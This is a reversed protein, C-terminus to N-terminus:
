RWTMVLEREIERYGARRFAAAMPTNGLDTAARVRPVGQAALVRTGEALIEEAYGRGRHDPLVALYAIVANYGNHAPVVFGVPDGDPLAAVRWWSRPTTYRAMEEEYHDLAVQRAPARSLDAISHADLTGPLVDTMLDILEGEGYPERFVLRGGPGPPPDALTHELRLREVFPRGGTRRVVERRDTVTALVAPDERWHAPVFRTWAPPQAGAPMVAATAARLLQEGVDLREAEPLRADMDLIDLLLPHAAGPRNWFGARALLRGGRLAVWLWAPRRRDTDLDGALESDLAYTLRTFLDLEERGTIPRLTLDHQNVTPM